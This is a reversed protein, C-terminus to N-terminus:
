VGTWDADVAWAGDIEGAQVAAVQKQPTSKPPVQQPVVAPSPYGATMELAPDEQLSSWRGLDAAM